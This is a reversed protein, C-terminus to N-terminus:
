TTLTQFHNWSNATCLSIGVFCDGAKGSQAMALSFTEGLLVQFIKKLYAKKAYAVYQNIEIIKVDTWLNPDEDSIEPM